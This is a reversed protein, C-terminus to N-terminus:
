DFTEKIMMKIDIMPSWGCDKAIRNINMGATSFYGNDEIEISSFYGFEEGVLKVAKACELLSYQQGIGLNYVTQWKSPAILAIALLGRAADEVDLLSVMQNPANLHIPKGQKVSEVFRALFRQPMNISSLRVNTYNNIGSAAFMKETAYKAMSYMDVPEIPSEETAFEGVPLRKYVGQSSVNIVNQVDNIKLACILRETFDLASSLDAPNNSRAFACNIVIDVPPTHGKFLEETTILPVLSDHRKTRSCAIAQHGSQIIESVLARGVLGTAGTVLIKSM